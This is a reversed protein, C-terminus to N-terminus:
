ESGGSSRWICESIKLDLRMFKVRRENSRDLMEKVRPYNEQGSIRLKNEFGRQTNEQLSFEGTITPAGSESALKGWPFYISLWCFSLVFPNTSNPTIFSHKHFISCKTPIHTSAESPTQRLSAYPIFFSFSVVQGNQPNKHAYPPGRIHNWMQGSTM